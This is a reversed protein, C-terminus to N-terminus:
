NNKARGWQDGFLAGDGSHLQIVQKEIAINTITGDPNVEKYRDPNEAVAFIQRETKQAYLKFLDRATIDEINTFLISDHGFVPLKTNEMIALDLLCVAKYRTGTGTDGPTYFAYSKLENFKFIPAAVRKDDKERIHTNNERMSSNLKNEITTTYTETLQVLTKEAEKYGKLASESDEFNKIATGLRDIEKSLYEREKVYSESVTPVTKYEELQTNIEAIRADILSILNEVEKNAEIIDELLYGYVDKHFKEYKKIEPIKVDEFFEKLAGYKLQYEEESLLEDNDNIDTLKKELTKRRRQLKVKEKNLRTKETAELAEQDNSNHINDYDLQELQKHLDVLQAVMKAKEEASIAIPAINHKRINDYGKKLDKKSDYDAKTSEIPKFMGFMKLLVSMGDFDSERIHANIPRWENYNKKNYIRFYPGVWERFSLDEGNKLGYFNVLDEKFQKNTITNRTKYESDCIDVREPSQTNRKYFRSKGDFEFEFCIDHHGVHEITEKEKQPYDDGGFCFDIIMLLTSKGISNTAGKEGLIVNLGNHFRIPERPVGHDIFKDCKITKLM